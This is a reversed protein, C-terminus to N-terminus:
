KWFMQLVAASEERKNRERGEFNGFFDGGDMLINSSPNCLIMPDEDNHM